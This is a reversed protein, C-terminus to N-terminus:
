GPWRLVVVEERLQQKTATALRTRFLDISVVEYGLREAIQALLEGTKIHIQLFSAQDGVVYGLMAGKKLKPAMSQFHRSMGGFYLTTVRHYNKEFGSTKGLELRRKEIAKAISQIEPIDAVHDDDTDAVFVNRTNSRLLGEKLLRLEEKNSILGLVVSELRTTRTYDKENPYPPSTFVASISKNKLLSVDRSDASYVVATAKNPVSVSKVDSAMRQCQKLWISVVDVDNKPKTIGIEPGFRVNGAHTVLTWAMALLMAETIPQTAYSFSKFIHKKLILARHLPKPSISDTLILKQADQDLSLLDDSNHHQYADVLEFNTGLVKEIERDAKKAIQQALLLFEDPCIDWNTKVRSALAAMPNAEFGVSNYHHNKAEVLTTGTGCFPDLVTCNDKLKFKTFYERVLHPPYSLVFRYWAHFPRDSEDLKNHLPSSISWQSRDIKLPRHM